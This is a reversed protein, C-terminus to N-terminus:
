GAYIFLNGLFLTPQINQHPSGSGNAVTNITTLSGGGQVITGSGAGSSSITIGHSHNGNEGGSLGVTEAGVQAAIARATLGSGSGAAGIARGAAKPLNFTTSGDGAGYTTGVAAFLAAYTTRSVTREASCILWKGHDATEHSLKTNGVRFGEVRNTVSPM